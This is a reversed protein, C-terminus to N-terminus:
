DDEGTSRAWSFRIELFILIALFYGAGFGAMWHAEKWPRSEIPSLTQFWVLPATPFLFMLVALLYGFWRAVWRALAIVPGQICWVVALVTELSLDGPENSFGWNIVLGQHILTKLFLAGFCAGMLLPVVLCDLWFLGARVLTKTSM